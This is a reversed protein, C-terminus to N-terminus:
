KHVFLFFRLRIWLRPSHDKVNKKECCRKWHSPIVQLFYVCYNGRCGCHRGVSRRHHWSCCPRCTVPFLVFNGKLPLVHLLCLKMLFLVYCFIFVFINYYCISAKVGCLAKYSQLSHTFLCLLNSLCSTFVSNFTTVHEDISLIFQATVPLINNNM